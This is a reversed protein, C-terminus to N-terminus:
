QAHWPGRSPHRTSHISRKNGHDQQNLGRAVDGFGGAGCVVADNEVCRRHSAIALGRVDVGQVTEALEGLREGAQARDVSSGVHQILLNVRNDGVFVTEEHANGATPFGDLGLLDDAVGAVEVVRLAALETNDFLALNDTSDAYKLVRNRACFIRVATLDNNRLVLDVSSVTRVRM